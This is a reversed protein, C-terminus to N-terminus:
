ELVRVTKSLLHHMQTGLRFAMFTEAICQERQDETWSTMALDEFGQRLADITDPETKQFFDSTEIWQPPLVHSASKAVYTNGGVLHAFVVNYWHCGLIHQQDIRDKVCELYMAYESMPITDIDLAIDQQYLEMDLYFLETELAELYNIKPQLPFKQLCTHVDKQAKIWTTYGVLNVRPSTHHGKLQSASHLDITATRMRQVFPVSM